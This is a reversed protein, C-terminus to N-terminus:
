KLKQPVTILEPAEITINLLTQLEHRQQTLYVTRQKVTNTKRKNQKFPVHEKLNNNENNKTTIKNSKTVM